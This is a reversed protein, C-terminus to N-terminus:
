WGALGEGFTSATPAVGVAALTQDSVPVSESKGTTWVTELAFGFGLPVWGVGRSLDGSVHRESRGRMREM